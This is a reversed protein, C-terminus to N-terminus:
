KKQFHLTNKKWMEFKMQCLCVVSGRSNFHHHISAFFISYWNDVTNLIGKIFFLKYNSERVVPYIKWLIIKFLGDHVMLVCLRLTAFGLMCKHKRITKKEMVSKLLGHLILVWWSSFCTQFHNDDFFIAASLSPQHYNSLCTDNWSFM